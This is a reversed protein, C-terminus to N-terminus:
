IAWTNFHGFSNSELPKNDRAMINALVAVAPASIPVEYASAFTESIAPQSAPRYAPPPARKMGSRIM